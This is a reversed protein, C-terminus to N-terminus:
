ICTFGFIDLAGHNAMMIDSAVAGNVALRRTLSLIIITRVCNYRITIRRFIRYLYNVPIFVEACCNVIPQLPVAVATDCISFALLTKVAESFKARKVNITGNQGHKIFRTDLTNQCKRKHNPKPVDTLFVLILQLANYVNITFYGTEFLGRMAKHSFCTNRLALLIILSLVCIKCLSYTKRGKDLLNLVMMELVFLFRSENIGIDTRSRM